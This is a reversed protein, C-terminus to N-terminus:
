ATRRPVREFVGANHTNTHAHTTPHQADATTHLCCHRIRVQADQQAYSRFQPLTRWVSYILGAPAFMAWRGSWLLKVTRFTQMVLSNAWPDGATIGARNAGAEESAKRVKPTGSGGGSGSGPPRGRGGGKTLGKRKIRDTPLALPAPPEAAFPPPPPLPPPPPPPPIVATEPADSAAADIAAARTGGPAKSTPLKGDKRANTMDEYVAVTSQRVLKLMPLAFSPPLADDSMDTGSSAPALTPTAPHPADRTLEPSVMPVMARARAGGDVVDNAWKIRPPAGSSDGGGGGGSGGSAHAAAVPAGASPHPRHHSHPHPHSHSGGGHDHFLPTLTVDRPYEYFMFGLFFNRFATLHSLAQLTAAVYCSNGLNRMGTRGPILGLRKSMTTPAIAPVTAPSAPAFPPSLAASTPTALPPVPPLEAMSTAASPAPSATRARRAAASTLAAAHWVTFLRQRLHKVYFADATLARDEQMQLREQKESFGPLRAGLEIPKRGAQLEDIARRMAAMHQDVEAAGSTPSARAPASLGAVRSLVHAINRKSPLIGHIMLLLRLQAEDISSDQVVWEECAYCYTAGSSLSMALQHPGAMCAHSHAGGRGVTLVSGVPSAAAARADDGGSTAKEPTSAALGIAAAAAAAAASATRTARTKRGASPPTAPPLPPPPPPLGRTASRSPSTERTDPAIRSAAALATANYHAEAHRGTSRGCGFHACHLCLWVDERSECVECHWRRPNSLAPTVRDFAIRSTHPCVAFATSAGDDMSSLSSLLSLPRDYPPPPLPPPLEIHLAAGAPAALDVPPTSADGDGGAASSSSSGERRRKHAEERDGDSDVPAAATATAAGRRGRKTGASAAAASADVNTASNSRLARRDAAAALGDAPPPPPPLKPPAAAAAAVPAASPAPAPAAAADAAATGGNARNSRTRTAM